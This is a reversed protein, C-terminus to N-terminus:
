LQKLTKRLEKKELCTKAGLLQLAQRLTAAELLPDKGPIGAQKLHKRVAKNLPELQATLATFETALSQAATEVAPSLKSIGYHCTGDVMSAFTVLRGPDGDYSMKYFAKWDQTDVMFEAKEM